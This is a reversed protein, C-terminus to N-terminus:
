HDNPIVMWSVIFAAVAGPIHLLVLGVITSILVKQWKRM